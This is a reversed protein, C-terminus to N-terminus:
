NLRLQGRCPAYALLLSHSAFAGELHRSPRFMYSSLSLFLIYRLNYFQPNKPTTLTKKLLMFCPVSLTSTRLLTLHVTRCMWYCVFHIYIYSNEMFPVYDLSCNKKEQPIQCKLFPVSLFSFSMVDKVTYCGTGFWVSTKLIFVHLCTPPECVDDVSRRAQWPVTILM